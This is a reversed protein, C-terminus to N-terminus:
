PSNEAERGGNVPCDEGCAIASPVSWGEPFRYELERLMELLRCIPLGVINNYCGEWDAAPRLETDQVAYAGAKDRPVGSAISAEIEQESLERLTIQSTMADSLTRGSAADIVTLGTAVHHTTGSLQRLMRRADDDDVPKGVAQGEFVVTSDAGIVLGTNMTAAVAQAKEQSLRRVMDQPSEGPIPEETLDAPTVTFELGLTDMLERRRPSASALTLSALTSDSGSERSSEDWSLFAVCEVHHTQPFMDLPAVEDLRYGGQCLIKLDRGLTEADCSIYAVRSPALEILSELARPQCGSRPPDLVVVDPKVPLNRLVDETRGLIFDLNQLEGANQKADAVAASSEEVAIVQKVSPALLIAFTGVGTYADLLVDDPTLHLRDRVLNAAAAAQDVNVQFFSPSSVDFNRGDVSETYRKQGTPIKIDPHVLYPQILYDGSYKGARISLQTTEGCRDQLGELLTNVGDHMLLCKEIRLFQRTERNVFGLAGERNITFRAHNRYGYQDPSPIVESVPPDELGGVRRLADTVKERKTKLQADYSLHQWQCGTCVGYYPCPPEVRDPSAELVEVVKASVYKRHVKVVEAVVREGPIGGAVFVNRGDFEAMAEGLRGWSTLLLTVRDGQQTIREAIEM